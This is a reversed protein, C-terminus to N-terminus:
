TRADIVPANPNPWLTKERTFPGAPSPHEVLPPVEPLEGRWRVSGAITGARAKDFPRGTETSPGQEAAPPQPRADGCGIAGALFLVAAGRAARNANGGHM